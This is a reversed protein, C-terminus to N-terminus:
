AEDPFKRHYGHKKRLNQNASIDSFLPLNYSYTFLSATEEPFLYFLFPRSIFFIFDKNINAAIVTADM